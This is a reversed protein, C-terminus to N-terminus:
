GLQRPRSFIREVAVSALLCAGFGGLMVGGVMTLDSLKQPEVYRSLASVGLGTLTLGFGGVTRISENNDYGWESVRDVARGIQRGADRLSPPEIASGNSLRYDKWM